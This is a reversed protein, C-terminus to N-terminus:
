LFDFNPFKLKQEEIEYRDLLKEWINETNNIKWFVKNEVNSSDIKTRDKLDKNQSFITQSGKLDGLSHKHDKHDGLHIKKQKTSPM